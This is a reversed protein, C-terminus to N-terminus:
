DKNSIIFSLNNGSFGNYTFLITSRKDIKTYKSFKLKKTDKAGLTNPIFGSHICSTLLVLENVSCAGLTHGIFPKISTVIANTSSNIIQNLANEEAENSSPSGSSHTNIIDIDNITLKSYKLSNFMTNYIVEGSPNSSTASYNDFLNESQLIYFDNLNKAKNELVVASCAEGLILGDSDKSLPLYKSTPSLLMLSTFGGFTLDNFFELGLVLAKSTNNQKIEDAAYILANASSTCATSFIIASKELNLLSTIYDIIMTNCVINKKHNKKYEEQIVSINVSTSGIYVSLTRYDEKKINADNLADFVVNKITTFFKEKKSKFNDNIFYFEKEKFVSKLYNDYNTNDLSEIKKIADVKNNAL